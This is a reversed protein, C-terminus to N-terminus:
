RKDPWATKLAYALREDDNRPTSESKVTRVATMQNTITNAKAPEAKKGKAEPASETKPTEAQPKGQAEKWLQFSLQEELYAAIEGYGVPSNGAAYRGYKIIDEDSEKSLLPYKGAEKVHKIFGANEAAVAQEMRARQEAEEKAKEAAEKEAQKEAKLEELEKRIKETEANSKHILDEPATVGGNLKQRTWKDYIADKSLGKRKAIADVFQDADDDLLKVLADIDAQRKELDTMRSTATKEHEAKLSELRALEDKLRAEERAVAKRQRELKAFGASLREQTVPEGEKKVEPKPEPTLAEKSEEEKEKPEPGKKPEDKKVKRMGRPQPKDMAAVVEEIESALPKAAPVEPLSMTPLPSPAGETETAM